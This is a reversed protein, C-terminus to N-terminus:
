SIISFQAQITLSVKLVSKKNKIKKNKLMKTLPQCSAQVLNETSAAKSNTMSVFLM